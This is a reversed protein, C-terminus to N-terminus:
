RNTVQIFNPKGIFRRLENYGCDGITFQIYNTVSKEFDEMISDFHTVLNRSDYWKIIYELMVYDAGLALCKCIDSYTDIEGHAVIKPISKYFEKSQIVINSRRQSCEQILSALPYYIGTNELQISNWESGTGVKIFDVGAIACSDYYSPNLINGIMVVCNPLETKLSKMLEILDNETGPFSELHIMYSGDMSINSLDRLTNILDRIEEYRFSVWKNNLLSKIRDYLPINCPLIAYFKYKEFGDINSLTVLGENPAIFIPLNGNEDYPNCETYRDSWVSSYMPVISIDKLSLKKDM